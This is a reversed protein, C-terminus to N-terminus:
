VMRTIILTYINYYLTILLPSVVCINYWRKGSLKLLGPNGIFAFLPFLLPTLYRAQCGHITQERVPTFSIYLATAILAALGFYLLVAYTESIAGRKFSDLKSKDTVATIFLITIFVGAGSGLGYYALFTIYRQMFKISLYDKLFNLLIKAYNFPETLIFKLQQHPNVSGGRIDGHGSLETFSRLFLLLLLALLSILCILYYKRYDRKKFCRKRLFFPFLLIPAYILKPICAVGFCACMIITDKTSIPKDPQQLESIFYAMGLMAFATIWTDYSYNTALLLNTPFLVICALIMKGSKLKKMAFYCLVAYIFLIAFEGCLFQEFFTAGFLRSVAIFIGSLRHSILTDANQVSSLFTEGYNLNVLSDFSGNDRLLTNAPDFVFSSTAEGYYSKGVYSANMAWKFHSDIDWSNHSLPSSIIMMTGTLMLIWFIAKEPKQGLDNRYIFLTYVVSISASIFFFRSHNFYGGFFDPGIIAKTLLFEIGSSIIAIVAYGAFLILLQKYNSKISRGAKKCINEKKDLFLVIVAASISVLIVAIYRVPSVPIKYDSVNPSQDYINIGKLNYNVDIDICISSINSHPVAFCVNSKSDLVPSRLSNKESFDGNKGYYLQAVTNIGFDNNSKLEICGVTTEPFSIFIQPDDSIIKVTGDPDIECNKSSIESISYSQIATKDPTTYIKFTNVPCLVAFASIFVLIGVVAAAAIRSKM